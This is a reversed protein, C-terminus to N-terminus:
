NTFSFTVMTDSESYDTHVNELSIPLSDTPIEFGLRNESPGEIWNPKKSRATRLASALIRIAGIATSKDSSNPGVLINMRHLTITFRSFAKYNKFEIQRLQTRTDGLVM